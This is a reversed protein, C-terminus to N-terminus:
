SITFFFWQSKISILGGGDIVVFYHTLYRERLFFGRVWFDRILDFFAFCMVLLFFCAYLFSSLSVSSLNSGCSSMCCFLECILYHFHNSPKLSETFHRNMHQTTARFILIAHKQKQM